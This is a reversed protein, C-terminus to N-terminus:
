DDSRKDGKEREALMADAYAYAAKSLLGFLKDELAVALDKGTSERSIMGAMAGIAIQDRLAERKDAAAMCRSCLEDGMVIYETEGCVRCKAKDEWKAM